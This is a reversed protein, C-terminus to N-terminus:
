GSSSSSYQEGTPLKRAVCIHYKDKGQGINAELFVCAAFFKNIHNPPPVFGGLTMLVYEDGAYYLTIQM